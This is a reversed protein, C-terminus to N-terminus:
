ISENNEGQKRVCKDEAEGYLVIDEAYARCSPAGCLGCDIGGLNREIKEIDSMIQMAKLMDDSFKFVDATDLPQEWRMDNANKGFSALKAKTVPMNKRLNQIKTKAVFPNEINLVGGVCGGPCANLEIFEIDSLKDDELEKLIAICNEIGDASLYKDLRVGNCEGGSSAWGIGLIGSSQIKQPTVIKNMEKVLAFYVESQSFIGDIRKKKTGLNNQIAFVKAPCPSIFFVGIEENKLGTEKMVVERALKASVDVPALLPLLNDKLDHFRLLILEVIAPCASSIIPKQVEGSAILKRTAESVLEAGASVEFVRDFGMNLLGTLVIDVDELNNFQGYLSPSPLAVKYKFKSKHLMDLSDYVARKAHSGCVRICEGCGICKEYHVMAIGDKIRIAETPCKRMCAICGKCKDKDLKVTSSRKDNM